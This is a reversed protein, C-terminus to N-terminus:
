IIIMHMYKYLVDAIFCAISVVLYLHTNTYRYLCVNVNEKRIETSYKTHIHCM